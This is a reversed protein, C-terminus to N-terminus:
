FSVTLALGAWTQDGGGDLEVDEASLSHALYGSLSMGKALAKSVEVGLQYNNEGDHLETAYGYDLAMMLYPSISLDEALRYDKSVSLEIFSGNSEAGYVYDLAVRFPWEGTAIGLGLENDHSGGSFRLHNLGVYADLSLLQFGYEAFFNSEDYDTSNAEAYWVGASLNDLASFVLQISSLGGDDLNNRGETIYRSDYLVSFEIRESDAVVLNPSLVVFVRFLYLLTKIKQM